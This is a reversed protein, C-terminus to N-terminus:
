YRDPIYSDLQHKYKITDNSGDYEVFVDGIEWTGNTGDERSMNQLLGDSRVYASDSSNDCSLLAM